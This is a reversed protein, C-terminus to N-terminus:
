LNEKSSPPKKQADVFLYTTNLECAISFFIRYNIDFVKNFSWVSIRSVTLSLIGMSKLPTM